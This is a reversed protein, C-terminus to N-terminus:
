QHCGAQVAGALAHNAGARQGEAFPRIGHARQYKAALALEWSADCNVKEDHALRPFNDPFETSERLYRNARALHQLVNCIAGNSGSFVGM